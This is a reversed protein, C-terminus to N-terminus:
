RKIIKQTSSGTDSTVNLIYVGSSLNDGNLEITNTNFFTQSLVVKGTITMLSVDAKSVMSSYSIRLVENFPNPFVNWNAESADSVNITIVDYCASTVSCEPTSLIVAYNGNAEAVFIQENAGEIMSSDACNIWQYNVDMANATLINGSQVVTQNIVIEVPEAFVVNGDGGNCEVTVTGSITEHCALTITYNYEGYPVNEIIDGLFNGTTIEAFFNGDTLLVSAGPITLPSGVFFFVSNTSLEVPEAFIAIGDGGNCEVTVTGSITEHCAL